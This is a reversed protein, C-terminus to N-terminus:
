ADGDRELDKMGRIAAEWQMGKELCKMGCVVTNGGVGTYLEIRKGKKTPKKCMLCLLMDKPM